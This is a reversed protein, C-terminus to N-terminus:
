KGRWFKLQYKALLTNLKLSWIVYLWIVDSRELPQKMIGAFSMMKCVMCLVVPFIGKCCAFNIWCFISDFESFFKSTPLLWASIKKLFQHKAFLQGMIFNIITLLWLWQFFEHNKQGCTTFVKKLSSISTAAQTFTFCLLM